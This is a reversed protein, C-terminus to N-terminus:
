AGVKIRQATGTRFRAFQVYVFEDQIKTTLPDMDRPSPGDIRKGDRDFSSTHCPCLFSQDPEVAISCGLHPCVVSLATVADGSRLLYVAGLQVNKAITWADRQDAVIAVKKPEGEVLSALPITKVWTGGNSSGSSAALPATVFVVAPAALACGFIAGGTVALVKLADRRDAKKGGSEDNSAM